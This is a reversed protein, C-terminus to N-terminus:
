YFKLADRADDINLLCVDADVLTRTECTTALELVLELARETAVMGELITQHDEGTRSFHEPRRKLLAKMSKSGVGPVFAHQVAMAMESDNDDDCLCVCHESLADERDVDPHDQCFKIALYQCSRLVLM